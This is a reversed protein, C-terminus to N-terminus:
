KEESKNGNGDHQRSPETVLYKFMYVVFALITCALSAICMINIWAPVTEQREVPSVIMVTGIVAYFLVAALKGAINSVVVVKRKKLLMLGGSLLLLEKLIYPTVFWVEVLNAVALCVLATCQMLKDALPDLIKGMDSVWNNRRALYGDVVDTAGALLFVLLALHYKHDGQGFFFIIAFVPVLALRICSLINPIHKLKMKM